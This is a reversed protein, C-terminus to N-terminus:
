TNCAIQAALITLVCWPRLHFSVTSFVGLYCTVLIAIVSARESNAGARRAFAKPAPPLQYETTLSCRHGYEWSLEAVSAPWVEWPFRLERLHATLPDSNARHLGTLGECRDRICM